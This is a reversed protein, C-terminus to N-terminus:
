CLILGAVMSMLVILIVNIKTFVAVLIAGAFIAFPGWNVLLPAQLNVFSELAFFIAASAIFAVTVPRIGKMCSEVARSEKFKLIFHAVLIVLVFSPLSVGLTGVLSGWFGAIRYGVYTAANVAIPGPTIQSIAAIDAFEQQGIWGRQTLEQQIITLIAYGGGFGILGIKVFVLFLSILIM